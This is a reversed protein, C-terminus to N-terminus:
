ATIGESAIGFLDKIVEQRVLNSKNTVLHMQKISMILFYIMSFFHAFLITSIKVWNNHNWNISFFNNYLKLLPQM